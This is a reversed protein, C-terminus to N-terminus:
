EVSYSFPLHLDIRPQALAHKVQIPFAKRVVEQTHKDLIAHGSSEELAIDLLYVSMGRQEITLRLIVKGELRNLKAELPYRKRQDMNAFLAQALWGYDPRAAPRARVPIQQVTRQQVAPTHRATAPQEVVQATEVPTQLNEIAAREAAVPTSTVSQDQVVPAETHEGRMLPQVTQLPREISEATEISADSRSVSPTVERSPRTDTQVQQTVKAVQEPTTQHVPQATELVHTEQVPQQEQIPRHEQVPQHEQIPQIEQVPQVAEVPQRAQVVQETKVPETKKPPPTKVPQPTPPAPAVPPPAPVAPEPPAPKDVVAVDWTFKEQAPPMTLDSVLALAASVLLGHVVISLAWCIPSYRTCGPQQM